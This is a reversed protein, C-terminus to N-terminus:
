KLRMDRQFYPCTEAEYATPLSKREEQEPTLDLTPANSRLHLDPNAIVVKLFDIYANALLQYEEEEDNDHERRQEYIFVAIAFPLGIVTVIYSALEWTELSNM